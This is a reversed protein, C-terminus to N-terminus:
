NPDDHMARVLGKPDCNEALDKRLDAEAVAKLKAKEDDTVGLAKEAEAVRADIASPEKADKWDCVRPAMQVGYMIALADKPTMDDAASALSPQLLLAGRLATAAILTRVM